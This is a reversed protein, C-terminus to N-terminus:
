AKQEGPAGGPLSPQELERRLADLLDLRDSQLIIVSRERPWPSSQALLFAPRRRFGLAGTVALVFAAALVWLGPASYAQVQFMPMPIFALPVSGRPTTIREVQSGTVAFRQVPAESAGQFVEVIFTSAARESEQRIIRMGVGDQPMLLVQESGPNPFGLGQLAATSSQGPQALLAADDLTRVLMAPAGPQVSVVVGDLTISGPALPLVQQEDGKNVRLVPGIQGMAPYILAYEFTVGLLTNSTREGPLLQGPLFQHSFMATWWVMSLALLMGAPLLPQLLVTRWGRVGLLREELISDSKAAGEPAGELGQEPAPAVRQTRRELYGAWRRLSQECVAATALPSAPLAARWRLVRQPMQVPVAEAGQEGPYSLLHPLHRIRQAVFVAQATQVLLLFMAVWLLAHFLPSHLLDFLGLTRLIAGPAGFGEATTTLWRDAALPETRLQGPMQPAVQTVIVAALLLVAIVMLPRPDTCAQWVADLARWLPQPPLTGAAASPSTQAATTDNMAASQAM